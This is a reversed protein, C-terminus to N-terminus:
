AVSRLSEDFTVPEADFRPEYSDVADAEVDPLYSDLLELAFTLAADWGSYHASMGPTSDPAAAKTRSADRHYGIAEILQRAAHTRVTM